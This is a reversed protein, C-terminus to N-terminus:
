ERGKTGTKRKLLYQRVGRVRRQRLEPIGALYRGFKNVGEAKLGAGVHQRLVEYVGAASLWEGEADDKAVDFYEKFYQVAPPVLQFQQNHAMIDQEEEETFWYQEGGLVAEVAEAYLQDYNPVYDVDIAGKLPVGIFRRSGTPDSLVNVENTTAIFSALRPFEEVHRGYPRKTKVTPLQLLNKLFGEQVKPSIQNFEDLNILLFQSMALLVQRKESLNLSDTFGWQLHQPLMCRCFTSKNCGQRSILLPVVANGYRRTRGLWQAVMYLFWKRFWLEWQPIDCPVTKALRAIHGEGDWVRQLHLDWLYERLPDYRKIYGSQVYRRVDKDHVNLGALRAEILLTNEAREDCPMWDEKTWAVNARYETYGMIVNYRFAFREDLFKILRRTTQSVDEKGVRGDTEDDGDREDKGDRGESGDTGNRWARDEVKLAVAEANFFAEADGTMVFHGRLGWGNRELPCPLVGSYTMFAKEYAVRCFAEADTEEQPLTGDACGVRVLIEMSQGDGGVFAALTMPLMRAAEKVADRDEKQALGSVHLAVIGNFAVMRLVGNEEKALEVSPYVQAMLGLPSFYRLENGRAVFERLRMVDRTLTPTQVREMFGRVSRTSLFVKQGKDTRVLSIKM